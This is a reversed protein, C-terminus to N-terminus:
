AAKKQRPREETDARPREETGTRPLERRIESYAIVFMVLVVLIAIASFIIVNM